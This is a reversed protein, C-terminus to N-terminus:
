ASELEFSALERRLVKKLVEYKSMEEKIKREQTLSTCTVLERSKTKYLLNIEEIKKLCEEKAMMSNLVLEKYNFLWIIVGLQKRFTELYSYDRYFRM